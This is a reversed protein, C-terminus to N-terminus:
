AARDTGRRSLAMGPPARTPVTTCLTKSRVCNSSGPGGRRREATCEFVLHRPVVHVQPVGVRHHRAEARGDRGRETRQDVADRQAVHGFAVPQVLEPELDREGPAVLGTGGQVHDVQGVEELGVQRRLVGHGAVGCAQAVGREAPDQTPVQRPAQVEDDAQAVAAEDQGVVLRVTETGAVLREGGPVVPGLGQLGLHLRRVVWELRDEVRHRQVAVQAPTQGPVLRVAM